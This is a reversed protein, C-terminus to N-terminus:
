IRGAKIDNLQLIIKQYAQFKHSTYPNGEIGALKRALETSNLEPSDKIAQKLQKTTM